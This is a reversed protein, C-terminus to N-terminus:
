SCARNLPARRLRAALLGAAAEVGSPSPRPPVPLSFLARLKGELGRPTLLDGLDCPVARTNRMLWDDLPPSEPWDARRLFLVPTGAMAAETFTGYGVKGVIVAVSAPLDAFAVGGATWARLDDRGAPVPLSTLWLWGRLSPWLSLDLDHDIGGFAILGIRSAEDVGLAQRLEAARDDPVRAVPGVEVVGSMLPMEMAPTVRVFPAAAYADCMQALIAPAEPLDGLYRHYIDAWNLSCLAVADIGARRAAALPLYAVNSLVLDPAAAALREAERSVRAAWDAHVARYGAASADRDVETASRMRLGFDDIEAVVDFPAAFREDLLPRPLTTQITLRLDPFHRRLAAIVPASMVAHGFGHPSLALWLHPARRPGTM